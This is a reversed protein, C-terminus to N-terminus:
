SCAPLTSQWRCWARILSYTSGSLLRVYHFAHEEQCDPPCVDEPHEEFVEELVRCFLWLSM